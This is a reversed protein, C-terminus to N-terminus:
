QAVFQWDRGATVGATITVVVHVTYTGPTLPVRPIAVVTGELLEADAVVSAGSYETSALLVADVVDGSPGTVTFLTLSPAFTLGNAAATAKANLWAATRAQLLVPTGATGTTIQASAPRPSEQDIAFTGSVTSAPAPNVVPTATPVVQGNADGAVYDIVCNSEGIADTWQAVAISTAPSLAVDAHYVSALQGRICTSGDAQPTGNRIVQAGGIGESARGVATTAGAQIARAGPDAAYYLGPEIDAYEDHPSKYEARQATTLSSWNAQVNTLYAAHARAAVDLATSQTVEGAGSALRAANLADFAAAPMSTASYTSAPVAINLTGSDNVVVVSTPKPVPAPQPTPAPPSSTAGGGCAAMSAALTVAMSFVVLHRINTM